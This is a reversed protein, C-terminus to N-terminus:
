AYKEDCRISKMCSGDGCVDVRVEMVHVVSRNGHSRKEIMRVPPHLDAFPKKDCPCV